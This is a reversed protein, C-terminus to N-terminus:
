ALKQIALTHEQVVKKLLTIDEKINEYDYVSNKYREYTSTYCSEITQLRPLTENEQLLELRKLKDHIPELKKDLMDSMALLLENDSM